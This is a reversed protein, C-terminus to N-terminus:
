HEKLLFASQWPLNFLVHFLVPRTRHVSHVLCNVCILLLGNPFYYFINQPLHCCVPLGCREFLKLTVHPPWSICRPSDFALLYVSWKGWKQFEYVSKSPNPDYNPKNTLLLSLGGGGGGGWLFMIILQKKEGMGKYFWPRDPHLEM